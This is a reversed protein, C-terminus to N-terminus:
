HADTPASDPRLKAVSTMTGADCDEKSTRVLRETGHRAAIAISAFCLHQYTRTKALLL